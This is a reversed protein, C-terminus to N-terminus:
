TKHGAVLILHKRTQGLLAKREAPLSIQSAAVGLEANGLNSDYRAIQYPPCRALAAVKFDSIRRLPANGVRRPAIAHAFNRSEARDHNRHWAIKGERCQDTEHFRDV